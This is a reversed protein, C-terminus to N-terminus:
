DLNKMRLIKEVFNKEEYEGECGCNEIYIQNSVTNNEYEECKPIFDCVVIVSDNKIINCTYVLIMIFIIVIIILYKYNKEM